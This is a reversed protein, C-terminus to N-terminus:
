EQNANYAFPPLFAFRRIFPSVASGLLYFFNKGGRDCRPSFYYRAMKVKEIRDQCDMKASGPSPQFPAM